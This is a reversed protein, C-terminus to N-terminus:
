ADKFIKEGDLSIKTSFQDRSVSLFCVEFRQCCRCIQQGWALSLPNFSSSSLRSKDLCLIVCGQYRLTFNLVTQHNQVNKNSISRIHRLDLSALDSNRAHTPPSSTHRHPHQIPTNTLHTPSTHRHPHQIPTNPSGRNM